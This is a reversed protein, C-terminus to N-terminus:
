SMKKQLYPNRYPDLPGEIDEPFTLVVPENCSFCACYGLGEAKLYALSLHDNSCRWTPREYWRDPKGMFLETGEAYGVLKLMFALSLLDSM